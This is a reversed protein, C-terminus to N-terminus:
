SSEFSLNGIQPTPMSHRQVIHANPRLIHVPLRSGSFLLDPLRLLASYVTLQGRWLESALDPHPDAAQPATTDDTM